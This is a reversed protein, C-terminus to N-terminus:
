TEKSLEIIRDIIKLMDDKTMSGDELGPQYKNAAVWIIDKDGQLDRHIYKYAM